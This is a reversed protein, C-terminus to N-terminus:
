HGADTQEKETSPSADPGAAVDNEPRNSFEWERWMSRLDEHLDDWHAAMTGELALADQPIATLPERNAIASTLARRQKVMLVHISGDRKEQYADTAKRWLDQNLEALGIIYELVEAHAEKALRM